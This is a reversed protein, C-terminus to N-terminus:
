SDVGHHMKVDTVGMYSGGLDLSLVHGAGRFAGM